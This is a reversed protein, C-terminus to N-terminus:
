SAQEPKRLFLAVLLSAIAYGGFCYLSMSYNGTVDRLVGSILPGSAQAFVQVSLAIGRIAGYSKRGFFDAWAVPLVTLAGGIAIGFLAAAFFAQEANALREMAAVAAVMVASTALLSTRVGIRRVILGFGFGFIGSFLSFTAVIWAATTADIGREILLPAQHLSVGAQIPFVFFTYLNLLWFAPTRLAEARTFSKEPTTGTGSAAGKAAGGDMELGLDEPRRGVLLWVPLFGVVLVTVGVAIWGTRWDALDTFYQAILPLCVLGAMMAVNSIATALARFRFFWNNVAGYIGLDFPGAFCTRAICYAIYFYLLSATFALAGVSFGTALVALALMVRAGHRDLLPGLFPSSVAALVGALSVAGSIATRSWGFETTMPEVFISLTAVAPGQRAFGACCVALLVLWGYFFPVRGALARAFFSADM